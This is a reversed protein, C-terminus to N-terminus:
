VLRAFRHLSSALAREAIPRIVLGALRGVNPPLPLELEETWRFDCEAGVPIVEFIGSGRVM